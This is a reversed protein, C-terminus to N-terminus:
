PSTLRRAEKIDVVTGSSLIVLQGGGHIDQRELFWPMNPWKMATGPRDDFFMNVYDMRHLKPDSVKPSGLKRQMSPCVLDEWGLGQPSLVDYWQQAFQADDSMTPRIRPWRGENAGMFGSTAVYLSKLRAVCAVRRAGEQYRLLAPLLLVALIGIIVIVTM